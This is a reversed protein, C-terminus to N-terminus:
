TQKKSVDLIEKNAKPSTNERLVKIAVPIKVNDGEPSWVGQSVSLFCDIDFLLAANKDNIELCCSTFSRALMGQLRYRLGGSGASQPKEAGDGEPHADSGSQTVCRQTDSAGGATRPILFSIPSERLSYKFVYLGNKVLQPDLM